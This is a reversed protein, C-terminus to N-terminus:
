YLKFICVMLSNSFNQKWDKWDSLYNLCVRHVPHSFMSLFTLPKSNMYPHTTKLFPFNGFIHVVERFYKISFSTILYDRWYLNAVYFSVPTNSRMISTRLTVILPLGSSWRLVEEKLGSIIASQRMPHRLWGIFSTYFHM